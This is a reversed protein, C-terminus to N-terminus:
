TMKWVSGFFHSWFNTWRDTSQSSIPCMIPYHLHNRHTIFYFHSKRAITKTYLLTFSLIHSTVKYALLAHCVNHQPPALNFRVTSGTAVSGYFTVCLDLGSETQKVAARSTVVLWRFQTNQSTSLASIHSSLGSKSSIVNPDQQM